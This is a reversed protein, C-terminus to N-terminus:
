NHSVWFMTPKTVTYSATWRAETPCFGEGKILPVIANITIKPPHGGIVTGLDLGTAPAGYICHGFIGSNITVETNTATLTGNDTGSIHGIDLAGKTVTSTPFTCGTWSLTEISGKVEEGTAATNSTKGSMTSGTCTDITSGGLTELVASGTLTGEVVTGVGYHESCATTSLNNKCLKTASATGAGFAMLAMAAVAALGLIKLYKM